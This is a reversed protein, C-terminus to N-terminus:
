RDIFPDVHILCRLGSCSHLDYPPYREDQRSGADDVTNRLHHRPNELDFLKGCGRPKDIKAKVQHGHNKDGPASFFDVGM